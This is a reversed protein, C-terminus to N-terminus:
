GPTVDTKGAEPPSFPPLAMVRVPEEKEVMEFEIKEKLVYKDEVMRSLPSTYTFAALTFSGAALMGIQFLIGRKRELDARGNKKAIMILFKITLEWFSEFSTGFDYSGTM